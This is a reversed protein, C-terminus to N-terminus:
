WGGTGGDNHWVCSGVSVHQIRDDRGESGVFFFYMNSAIVRQKEFVSLVRAGVTLTM